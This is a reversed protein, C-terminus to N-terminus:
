IGIMQALSNNFDVAKRPWSDLDMYVMYAMYDYGLMPIIIKEYM